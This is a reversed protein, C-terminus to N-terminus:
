IMRLLVYWFCDFIHLFIINIGQEEESIISLPLLTGNKSMSSRGLWISCHDYWIVLRQRSGLKFSVYKHSYDYSYNQPNWNYNACKQQLFYSQKLSYCISLHLKSVLTFMTYAWRRASSLLSRLSGNQSLIKTFLKVHTVILTHFGVFGSM